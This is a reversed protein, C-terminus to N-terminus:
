LLAHLDNATDSLGCKRLLSLVYYDDADPLQLNPIIDEYYTVLADPFALNAKAVRKQIQEEAVGKNRM